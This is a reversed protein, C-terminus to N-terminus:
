EDDGGKPQPTDILASMRKVMAPLGDGNLYGESLETICKQVAERRVDDASRIELAESLPVTTVYMLAPNDSHKYMRGYYGDRVQFVADAPILTGDFVANLIVQKALDSHHSFYRTRARRVEEIAERLEM